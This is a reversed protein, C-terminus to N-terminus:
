INGSYLKARCKVCWAALPMIKKLKKLALYPPKKAAAPRKKKPNKGGSAIKKLRKKAIKKSVLDSDNM